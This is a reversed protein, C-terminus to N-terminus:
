LYERVMAHKWLFVRQPLFEDHVEHQAAIKRRCAFAIGQVIGDIIARYAM